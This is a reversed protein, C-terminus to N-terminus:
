PNSQKSQDLNNEEEIIKTCRDDEFPKHSGLINNCNGCIEDLDRVPYDGEKRFRGTPKFYTDLGTNRNFLNM